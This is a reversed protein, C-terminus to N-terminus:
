HGTLFIVPIDVGAATLQHQLDLGSAGPMRVDLILCSPVDPRRAALFAAASEYDQVSLDVSRMLLRLSQRTYADDDAVCLLAQAEKMARRGLTPRFQVHGWARGLGDLHPRQSSRHDRSM